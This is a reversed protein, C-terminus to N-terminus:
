SFITRLLGALAPRRRVQRREHLHVRRVRRAPPGLAREAQAAVFVRLLRAAAAVREGHVELLEAPVEDDRGLPVLGVVAGALARVHEQLPIRVRVQHVHGVRRPRAAGAAAGPLHGGDGHQVEVLVVVNDVAQQRAHDHVPASTRLAYHTALPARQLPSSIELFARSPEKTSSPNHTLLSVRPSILDPRIRGNSSFHVRVTGSYRARAEFLHELTKMTINDHNWTLKLFEEGILGM